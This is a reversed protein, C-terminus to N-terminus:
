PRWLRTDVLLIGDKGAQVTINGGAGALMSVNGQVPLVELEGGNPNRDEASAKPAANQRGRNQGAQASVSEASGAAAVLVVNLVICILRAQSPLFGM